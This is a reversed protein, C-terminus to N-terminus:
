SHFALAPYGDMGEGGDISGWFGGVKAEIGRFGGGPAAGCVIWLLSPDM